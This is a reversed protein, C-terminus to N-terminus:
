RLCQGDLPQHGVQAQGPDVTCDSVHSFHFPITLAHYSLLSRHAQMLAQLSPWQITKQHSLQLCM